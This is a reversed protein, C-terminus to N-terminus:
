CQESSGVDALCTMCYFGIGALHSLTKRGLWTWCITSKTLIHFHGKEAQATPLIILFTGNEGMTQFALKWSHSFHRALM